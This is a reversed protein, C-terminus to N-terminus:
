TLEKKHMDGQSLILEKLERNEKHIADLEARVFEQMEQNSDVPPYFYYYVGGVTKKVVWIVTDAALEIITLIVM